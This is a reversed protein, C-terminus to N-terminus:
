LLVVWSAGCRAARHDMNWHCQLIPPELHVRNEEEVVRRTSAAASTREMMLDM